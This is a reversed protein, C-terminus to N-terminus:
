KRKQSSGKKRYLFRQVQSNKNFWSNPLIFKSNSFKLAAVKIANQIVVEKLMSNTRRAGELSFVENDVPIEIAQVDTIGIDHLYQM